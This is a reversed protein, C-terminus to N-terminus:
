LESRSAIRALEMRLPVGFKLIPKPLLRSPNGSVDRMDRVLEANRGSILDALMMGSITGRAAGVSQDCCSLYIGEEVEGWFTEFNGSISSSGGWTYEFEVHTLEPYRDNFGERHVARIRPLVNKPTNYDHVYRFSNRIILRRDRTMRLTTGAQDAPTLGWDLKGKYLSMERDNLPRTMSAFTMVPLIRNKMFGLEETFVNTALVISKCRLGVHETKVLFGDTKREIGVVPASEVVRVNEPMNDAMGRMLAAPQMLISDPTFIAERYYNTGFIDALACGSLREYDVGLKQLLDEFHSLRRLGREGVAAQYKGANSWQCDIGFKKVQTELYAIAIRNLKLIKRKIETAGMELDRKHPLNIVFGSNRGSAGQGIKLADILLIKEEPQNEALRRATATGVFGGGIVITRFSSSETLPAFDSVNNLTEFWGCKKDYEPFIMTKVASLEPSTKM